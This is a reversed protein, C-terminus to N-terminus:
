SFVGLVRCVAHANRLAERSLHQDVTWGSQYDAILRVRYLYRVQAKLAYVKSKSLRSGLKESILRPVHHHAPTERGRVFPRETGLAFTVASFAAYYARSTCSRSCGDYGALRQAAALNEKAISDWDSM